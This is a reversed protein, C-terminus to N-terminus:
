RMIGEKLFAHLDFFMPKGIYECYAKELSAGRSEKHDSMFYVADASDIMAFSLRMYDKPELGNPMLAPNIATHGAFSLEVEKLLFKSKYEPDGTIKGAIYIKM